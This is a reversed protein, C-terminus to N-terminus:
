PRVGASKRLDYLKRSMEMREDELAELAKSLPHNRVIDSFKRRDAKRLDKMLLGLYLGARREREELSKFSYSKNYEDFERLLSVQIKRIGDDISKGRAEAVQLQAQAKKYGRPKRPRTLLPAGAERQAKRIARYLKDKARKRSPHPDFIDQKDSDSLMVWTFPAGAVLAAFTRHNGDRVQVTLEGLDDDDYPEGMEWENYERSQRIDSRDVISFFGYGADVIPQDGDRISKVLASFKDGYFINGQVPVVYRAEVPVMMGDAPGTYGIKRYGDGAYFVRETRHPKLEGRATDPYYEELGKHTQDAYRSLVKYSDVNREGRRKQAAGAAALAAVAAITLHAPNM